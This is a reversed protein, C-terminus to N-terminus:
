FHPLVCYKWLNLVKVPSRCLTPNSHHKDYRLSYSVALAVPHGKNAKEQISAVAVKMIMMPELRLGLYDLQETVEQLLTFSFQDRPPTQITQARSCPFSTFHHQGFTRVRFKRHDNGQMASKHPNRANGQMASKHQFCMVEIKEANLEM